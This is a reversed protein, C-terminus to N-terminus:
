AIISTATAGIPTGNADLPSTPSPQPGFTAIPLTPQQLISVTPLPLTPAPTPSPVNPITATATPTETLVITALAKGPTAFLDAVVFPEETVTESGQCAVLILALLPIILLSIRLTRM